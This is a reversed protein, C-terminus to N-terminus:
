PLLEAGQDAARVHGGVWAVVAVAVAVGIGRAEINARDMQVAQKLDDRQREAEAKAQSLQRNQQKLATLNKMFDAKLRAARANILPRACLRWMVYSALVGLLFAQLLALWIHAFLYM